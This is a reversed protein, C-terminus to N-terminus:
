QRVTTNTTDTGVAFALPRPDPRPDLVVPLKRLFAAQEHLRYISKAGTLRSVANQVTDAIQLSHDVRYNKVSDAVKVAHNCDDASQNSYNGAEANYLCENPCVASAGGNTRTFCSHCHCVNGCGVAYSVAAAFYQHVRITKEPLCVM